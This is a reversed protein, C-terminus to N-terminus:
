VVTRVKSVYMLVGGVQKFAGVARSGRLFRAELNKRKKKRGQM